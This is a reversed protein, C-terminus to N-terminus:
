LKMENGMKRKAEMCWLLEDLFGKAFKDTAAKDTANGHEDYSEKVKAVRFMAPVMWAGIKWLPFLLQTMVQTGAYPGDSVTAVAIPKRKWEAYLLDIVNKLSAPLSGNYEPTVIIIGDAEMVDEAFELVEETPDKMLRLRENFIPFQYEYLDLIEVDALKHEKIYREFFLAVRHSNRGVRVSSSLIAIKM